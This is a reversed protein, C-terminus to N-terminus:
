NVQCGMLDLKGFLTHLTHYIYTYIPTEKEQALFLARVALEDQSCVCVSDQTCDYWLLNLMNKSMLPARFHSEMANILTLMENITM